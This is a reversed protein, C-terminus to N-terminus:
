DNPSAKPGRQRPKATSGTKATEGRRAEMAIALSSRSQEFRRRGRSTRSLARTKSVPGIAKTPRGRPSTNLCPWTTTQSRATAASCASPPEAFTPAMEDSMKACIGEAIELRAWKPLRQHRQQLPWARSPDFGSPGLGVEPEAQSLGTAQSAGQIDKTM